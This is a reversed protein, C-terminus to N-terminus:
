WSWGLNRAWHRHLCVRIISSSDVHVSSCSVYRLGFYRNIYKHTHLRGILAHVGIARHMCITHYLIHQVIFANQITNQDTDSGQATALMTIMVSVEPANHRPSIEVHHRWWISVNEANSTMQALFEWCLPWHRQAKINEKIQPQIFSQTFLRSAPSKLRWRAWQSTVTIFWFLSLLCPLMVAAYSLISRPVIWVSQM